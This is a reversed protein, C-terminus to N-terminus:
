LKECIERVIRDVFESVEMVGLDGETRGRVAIREEDIEKDGVIVM